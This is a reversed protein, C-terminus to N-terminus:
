WRRFTKEPDSASVFNLGQAVSNAAARTHQPQIETAYIKGVIGWTSVYTMAFIFLLLIIVWRGGGENAHVDDSAYLSGIIYMCGTLISGGTIVCTRRDWHDALIFAPISIAFM